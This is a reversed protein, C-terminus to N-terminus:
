LKIMAYSLLLRLIFGSKECVINALFLVASATSNSYRERDSIMSIM